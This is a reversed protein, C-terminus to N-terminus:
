AAEGRPFPDIKLPEGESDPPPAAADVAARSMIKTESETDTELPPHPPLSDRGM